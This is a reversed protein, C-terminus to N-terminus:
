QTVELLPKFVQEFMAILAQSGNLSFKSSDAIIKSPLGSKQSLWTTAKGQQYPAFVILKAQQSQQLLSALQRSNPAVGPKPEIYAIPKINLWDFAYRYTSHYSILPLQKLKSPYDQWLTLQQQWTNLFQQLQKQYFAKNSADLQQLRATLAKAIAPYFSPNLHFHPNGSGHIDGQSKDLSEPVDLLEVYNAAIFYGPKQPQIAPNNAKRLLLPLWSDELGAGNCVLLDAKRAKALLSPRAEVQHPDQQNDTASYITAKDGALAESLAQWHPECAFVNIQAHSNLAIFVSLFISLRLLM